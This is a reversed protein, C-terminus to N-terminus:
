KGPTLTSPCSIFNSWVQYDSLMGEQACERSVAMFIEDWCDKNMIPERLPISKAPTDCVISGSKSVMDKNYDEGCINQVDPNCYM